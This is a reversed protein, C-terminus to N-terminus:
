LINGHSREGNMKTLKFILDLVRERTAWEFGDVIDTGVGYSHFQVPEKRLINLFIGHQTTQDINTVIVDAFRSVRFRKIISGIDEAKTLATLVLHVRTPRSQVNSTLSRVFDLEAMNGLSIGPTDVLIHDYNEYARVADDLEDPSKIIQMPINLIRCYTKIQETAGVKSVDTSIVAVSQKQNIVYETAIKVLSTTKGSGNPGVFIEVGQFDNPEVVKIEQMIWKAFWSDVKAKGADRGLKRMAQYAKEQLIEESVGCAKLKALISQIASSYKQSPQIIQIGPEEPPNKKFKEFIDTQLSTKFADRVADRVRTSDGSTTPSTVLAQAQSEGDGIDIYPTKTVRKANFKQETKEFVRDIIQKQQHASKKNFKDTYTEGLQKDALQKKKYHHESVAAVITFQPSGIRTKSEQTNLIIAEPGLEEKVQNLADVISSAQYKKVQM